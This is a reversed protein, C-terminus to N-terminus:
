GHSGGRAEAACFKRYSECLLCDGAWGSMHQAYREAESFGVAECLDSFKAVQLGRVTIARAKERNGRQRRCFQIIEEDSM